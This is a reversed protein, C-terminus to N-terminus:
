FGGRMLGLMGGGPAQTSAGGQRQGMAQMAQIVLAMQRDQSQTFSQMAQLDRSEKAEERKSKMLAKIYEKTKARSETVGRKTAEASAKSLLTQLKMQEKSLGREGAQGAAGVATSGLYGAGLLLPIFNKSKYLMKAYKPIKLLYPLAAAGGALAIAPLPM